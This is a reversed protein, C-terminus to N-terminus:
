RPLGHHGERRLLGGLRHHPPPSRTPGVRLPLNRGDAQQSGAQVQLTQEVIRPQRIGRRPTALALRLLQAQTQFRAPKPSAPNPIAVEGRAWLGGGRTRQRREIASDGPVQHISNFQIEDIIRLEFISLCKTINHGILM